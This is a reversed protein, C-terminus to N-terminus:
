VNIEAQSYLVAHGSIRVRDGRDECYLVGGRPSAQYATLVKKHLRESWYPILNCHASGCVPDENIKIKPFFTRSVFDYDKAPATIFLGMGDELALIATYDPVFSRVDAEDELVLILDRDVYAEASLGHVISRMEDTFPVPRPKRAPFDMELLDGNKRVRLEGSMSTFVLEEAETDFFRTLVYSTGLTAHGCLDVEGGPTFWRIHYREGGKVVFATESLNNEIAIDAMIKEPLWADMVCVAAPNGHFVSQTFADVVYQKM